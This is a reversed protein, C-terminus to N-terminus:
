AFVTTSEEELFFTRRIYKYEKGMRRALYTSSGRKGEKKQKGV